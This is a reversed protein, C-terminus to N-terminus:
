GPTKPQLLSTRKQIENGGEGIMMGDDPGGELRNRLCIACLEDADTRSIGNQIMAANIATAAIM